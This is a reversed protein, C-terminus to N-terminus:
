QARPLAISGVVLRTKSSVVLSSRILRFRCLLIAIPAPTLTHFAVLLTFMCLFEFLRVLVTTQFTSGFPFGHMDKRIGARTVAVHVGRCAKQVLMMKRGSSIFLVLYFVALCLFIVPVAPIHGPEATVLSIIANSAFMSFLFLGTFNLLRKAIGVNREQQEYDIDFVAIIGDMMEDYFPDIWTLGAAEPIHTYETSRTEEVAVAATVPFSAPAEEGDREMAVYEAHTSAM